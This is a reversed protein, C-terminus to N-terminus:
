TIVYKILLESLISKGLYTIKYVTNRGKGFSKIYSLNLLKRFSTLIQKRSSNIANVFVHKYMPTAGKEKGDALYLLVYWDPINLLHRRVLKKKNGEYNSLMETLYCFAQDSDNIRHPKNTEKLKLAYNMPASLSIRNIQTTYDVVDEGSIVMVGKALYHDAQKSDIQRSKQQKKFKEFDTIGIGNETDEILIFIKSLGSKSLIYVQQIFSFMRTTITGDHKFLSSLIEAPLKEKNAETMGSVKSDFFRRFNDVQLEFRM